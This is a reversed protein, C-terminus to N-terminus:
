EDIGPAASLEGGLAARVAQKSRGLTFRSQHYKGDNTRYRFNVDNGNLLRYTVLSEIEGRSESAVVYRVTRGKVACNEGGAFHHQPRRKDIQFTPCSSGDLRQPSKITLELVLEDAPGRYLALIESDANRVQARSPRQGEASQAQWNADADATLLLAM